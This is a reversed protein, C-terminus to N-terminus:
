HQGWKDAVLMHAAWLNAVDAGLVERIFLIM